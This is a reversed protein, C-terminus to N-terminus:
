PDGDNSDGEGGERRGDRGRSMSTCMKSGRKRKIKAHDTLHLMRMCIEIKLYTSTYIHMMVLLDPIKGIIQTNFNQNKNFLQM